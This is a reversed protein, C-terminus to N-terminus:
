ATSIAQRYMFTRRDAAVVCMFLVYLGQPVGMFGPRAPAKRSILGGFSRAERLFFAPGRIPPGASIM